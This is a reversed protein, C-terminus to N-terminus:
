GDTVIAERVRIRTATDAPSDVIAEWLGTEETTILLPGAPLLRGDPDRWGILIPSRAGLPSETRKEGGGWIRVDVDAEVTVPGGSGVDFVQILVNRGNVETWEPDGVPELRSARRRTTGTTGGTRPGAAGGPAPTLLAGLLRSMGALGGPDGQPAETGRPSAHSKLREDIKRLTTRVLSRDRDELQDPIWADHTPPEAHAFTADQEPFTRFVGAYWIRDDPLSPGPRYEVVLEPTRLLCCHHVGGGLGLELGVADIGPPPAFTTRLNIRGVPDAGPGYTITEGAEDLERYAAVFESLAPYSSPEEIEVPVGDRTIRFRMPRTTGIMKPWLHWLVSLALRETLEESQLGDFDLAVVAISTGLENNDFLPFGLEEALADAEDGVVPEVLDSSEDPLGFWHRGTFGRGNMEFGQGLAAGLLRSEPKGDADLCRTYVLITSAKSALFYVAKGFGYTGGGFEVDRPEGVMLFFSAYDHREFESVHDARTPGGLGLTGRDSIFLVALEDTLATGLPLHDVDPAGAMLTHRWAKSAQADMTRLDLAFLVSGDYSEDRADWSNQAAERVLVVFRDLSPRGLQNKIGEAHIAGM